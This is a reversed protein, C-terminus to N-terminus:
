KLQHFVQEQEDCLGARFSRQSLKRLLAEGEDALRGFSDMVFPCFDWDTLKCPDDYLKHKKLEVESMASLSLSEVRSKSPLLPHCISVDVALHGTVGMSLLLDAPRLSRDCQEVPVETRTTIGVSKSIHLLSDALAQHRIWHQAKNCTVAHDGFCDAPKGCSECCLTSELASNTSHSIIPLGLHWKCLVSFESLQLWLGFAPSPISSLWTGTSHTLQCALRCRDRATANSIITEMKQKVILSIWWKQSLFDVNPRPFLVKSNLWSSLEPPPKLLQNNLSQMSNFLFRANKVDM